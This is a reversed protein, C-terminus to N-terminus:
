FLASQQPQDKTQCNLKIDAKSIKSCSAVAGVETPYENRNWTVKFSLSFTGDKESTEAAAFNKGLVYALAQLATTKESARLEDDKEKDSYAALIQAAGEDIIIETDTMPPM